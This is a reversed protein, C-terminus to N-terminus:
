SHARLRNVLYPGWQTLNEAEFFASHGAVIPMGATNGCDINTILPDTGLYGAHGMEGWAPDSLGLRAALEAVETIEDGANYYVDIWPATRRVILRSLAANIFICGALKVGRGMLDYAIACGNSHCILVDDPAVYAALTGVIIPNVFRTEVGDIWGYDPYKVAYPGLYQILNEVPSPGETRIGHILHIM